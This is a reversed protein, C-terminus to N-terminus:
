RAVRVIYRGADSSTVVESGREQLRLVADPLCLSTQIVRQKVDRADILEGDKVQGAVDPCRFTAENVAREELRLTRIGAAVGLHILVIRAFPDIRGISERIRAIAEDVATTHVSWVEAAVIQQPQLM